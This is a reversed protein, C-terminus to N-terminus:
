QGSPTAVAQASQGGDDLRALADVLLRKAQEYTKPGLTGESQATELSALEALLIRRAQARDEALESKGGRRSRHAAYLGGLATLLALGCAVLRGPGPVPLGSLEIRVERLESQGPRMVRRTILIRKGDPGRAPEATEFGPVDLELGPVYEVLVRLEALHPPVGVTFAQDTEQRSPVQFQVRVDKQGPPFTGVLEISGPREEFGGHAGESRVDVAEFREPLSLRINEPIWTVRSMNIVRYLLDFHFAGDRQEILVFGRFGIFAQKLDRTTPYVHLRVRQGAKEDLRFGPIEYTAGQHRVRVGYTLRLSGELQEFSVQGQADSVLTRQDSSKGQSISEFQTALEVPIGPLPQDDAGVVEVLVRGPGLSPDVASADQPPADGHFGHPSVPAPRAPPDPRPTEPGAASPVTAPSGPPEPAQALAITSPGFLVTLACAAAISSDILRKKM